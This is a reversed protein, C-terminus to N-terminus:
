SNNAIIMQTRTGPYSYGWGVGANDTIVHWNNSSIAILNGSGAGKDVSRNNVFTCRGGAVGILPNSWTQNAGVIFQNGNIIATGASMSYYGGGPGSNRFLSNVLQVYSNGSQRIFANNVVVAAEFQCSDVRLYGDSIIIPSYTADGVTFYCAVTNMNGGAMSLSAFNDFDTDTVAGFTTGSATTQLELQIGGNIFLCSNIKLDDCRGSVVGRNTSDFFISQNPTGAIEFPWYQLRLIRVTDLAGDIRVGFNYCSMELGDITAGGSNLRMDIGTMGQTIRCNQITFRPVAQAYIAPPYNILSARNSTVPQAFQIGIDRLTPGPESPTFVLVATDALNFDYNLDDALFVSKTRGDGSIIQGPYYCGLASGLRYTGTPVYV